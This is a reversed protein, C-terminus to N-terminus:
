YDYDASLYENLNFEDRDDIEPLDYLDNEEGIERLVEDFMEVVEMCM